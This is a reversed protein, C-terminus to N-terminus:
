SDQRFYIIVGGPHCCTSQFWGGSDAPSPQHTLSFVVLGIGAPSDPQLRGQRISLVVGRLCVGESACGCAVSVVEVGMREQIRM